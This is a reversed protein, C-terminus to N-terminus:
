GEPAPALRYGLGHLNEIPDPAGAAAFARRLIHMQSRLTESSPLRDGWVATELDARSFVREPQALLTELLRLSKPPLKIPVGGVTVALTAANYAIAGHRLERAATRGGRRKHLAVLRAELERLEFPKALYDDAGAGFGELKDELTDRATLMLVPTDRLADERLRRCLTLGDIRPLNLDLVVADFEQTAALHLGTVGDSAADVVHGRSELFDCVNTAIPLEDEIVLVKM